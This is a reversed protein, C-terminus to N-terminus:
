SRQSGDVNALEVKMTRSPESASYQFDTRVVDGYSTKLAEQAGEEVEMKVQVMLVQFEWEM